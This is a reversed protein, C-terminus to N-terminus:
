FLCICFIHRTDSAVKILPRYIVSNVRAAVSRGPKTRTILIVMRVLIFTDSVPARDARWRRSWPLDRRARAQFIKTVKGCINERYDHKRHAHVLVLSCWTYLWTVHRADGPLEDFVADLLGDDINVEDEGDEEEEIVDDEYYEEEDLDSGTVEEKLRDADKELIINNGFQQNSCVYQLHLYLIVSDPALDSRIAICLLNDGRPAAESHLNSAPRLLGQHDM